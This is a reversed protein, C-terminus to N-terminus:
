KFRIVWKVWDTWFVWLDEEDSWWFSLEGRDGHDGHNGRFFTKMGHAEEMLINHCGEDDPLHLAQFPTEERIHPNKPIRVRKNVRTTVLRGVLRGFEDLPYSERPLLGSSADFMDTLLEGGSGSKVSNEAVMARKMFLCTERNNWEPDYNKTIRTLQTGVWEDNVAFIAMSRDAGLLWDKAQQSLNRTKHIEYPPKPAENLREVQSILSIEIRNLM